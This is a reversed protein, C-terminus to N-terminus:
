SLTVKNFSNAKELEPLYIQFMFREFERSDATFIDDM